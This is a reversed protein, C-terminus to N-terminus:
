KKSRLSQTSVLSLKNVHGLKKIERERRAADARNETDEVYVLCLPLHARVYKSGKGKKHKKIRAPLDNTIGTYFAGNKLELIYVVWLKSLTATM